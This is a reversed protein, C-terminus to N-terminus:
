TAYDDSYYCLDDDYFSECISSDSLSGENYHSYHDLSDLFEDETSSDPGLNIEELDISLDDDERNGPNENDLNGSEVVAHSFSSTSPISKKVIRQFCNERQNRGRIMLRGIDSDDEIYADMAGNNNNKIWQQGGDSSKAYVLSKVRSPVMQNCEDLLDKLESAIGTDNENIFSHAKGTDGASRLRNIYGIINTPLDFNIVYNVNPIDFVRAEDGTVVMVPTEESKFSRLVIERERQTKDWHMSCVLFGHQCLLDMTQDCSNKTQVFILTLGESITCLFQMLREIKDCTEVYEVTQTVYKSLHPRQPEHHSCMKKLWEPVEHKNMHLHKKIKDRVLNLDMENIFSTITGSTDAFACRSKYIDINKPLDFNIVKTINQLNLGRLAADTAILVKSKRKKFSKLSMEREHQTQGGYFCCASSFGKVSLADKVYNCPLKTFVLVHGDQCHHLLRNFKDKNRVHEVNQSVIKSRYEQVDRRLDEVQSELHSKSRVLDLRLTENRRLEATCEMSTLKEKAIASRLSVNEDCIHKYKKISVTAMVKYKKLDRELRIRERDWRVKTDDEKQSVNNDGGKSCCNSDNCRSNLNLYIPVFKKVTQNCAPCKVRKVTASTSGWQANNFKSWGNYCERHFCHGCNTVGIPKDLLGFAELCIPCQNETM